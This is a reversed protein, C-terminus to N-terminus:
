AVLTRSREEAGKVYMFNIESVLRRESIDLYSLVACLPRFSNDLARMKRRGLEAGAACCSYSEIMPKVVANNFPMAISLATGKLVLRQGCPLLLNREEPEDKRARWEEPRRLFSSCGIETKMKLPAGTSKGNRLATFLLITVRRM